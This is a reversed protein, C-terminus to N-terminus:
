KFFLWYTFGLAFIFGGSFKSFLTSLTQSVWKMRKKQLATLKAKTDTLEKELRLLKQVSGEHLTCEKLLKAAEDKVKNLEDRLEKEKQENGGDKLCSIFLPHEKSFGIEELKAQAVQRGYQAVIFRAVFLKLQDKNKAVAIIQKILAKINNNVDITIWEIFGASSKSFIVVGCAADKGQSIIMSFSYTKTSSQLAEVQKLFALYDFGEYVFTLDSALLNSESQKEYVIANTKLTRSLADSHKIDSNCVIIRDLYPTAQQTNHFIKLFAPVDDIKKAHKMIDPFEANSMVNSIITSPSNSTSDVQKIFRAAIRVACFFHNEQKGDQKFSIDVIPFGDKKDCEVSSVYSNAKLGQINQHFASMTNKESACSVASCLLFILVLSRSVVKV